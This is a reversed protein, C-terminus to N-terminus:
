RQRDFTWLAVRLGHSDREPPDPFSRGRGQAIELAVVLGALADIVDDAAAGRPPAARVLEEPIGAELLLRRRLALGPEFPRGKVKKPEPLAREGNMSWFALEPHVEYLRETLSRDQRLLVDIERIKPFLAFGQRSVKRPPDSTALARRCAEGYDAAEVAPRSPIAFVSSQRAGLLPRVLQEPLRGSGATRDPLGVPMDVAVVAPREPGALIDGIWGAVRLLPPEAGDTRGFAAIWGAPCGDVGAVWAGM